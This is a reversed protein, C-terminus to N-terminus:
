EVAADSVVVKGGMILRDDDDADRLAWKHTVAETTVAAPYKFTLNNRDDGSVSLEEDELTLVSIKTKAKDNTEFVLVLNKDDLDVPTTKDPLTVVITESITEGVYVNLVSSNVAQRQGVGIALAVKGAITGTIGNVTTDSLEIEPPTANMAAILTDAITQATVGDVVDGDSALGFLSNCLTEARARQAMPTPHIGDDSWTTDDPDYGIDEMMRRSNVAIIKTGAEAIETIADAYLQDETEQGASLDNRETDSMLIIPVTTNAWTSGRLLAILALLKTKFEAATDGLVDSNNTGLGILIADWDGMTRFMAGANAHNAAISETTYGTFAFGEWIIGGTSALSVLRAGALNAGAVVGGSANAGRYILNTQPKTPDYPITGTRFKVPQNDTQDLELGSSFGTANNAGFYGSSAIDIYPSSRWYLEPPGATSTYAFLDAVFGDTPDLIDYVGARNYYSYDAKTVPLVRSCGQSTSNNTVVAKSPLIYSDPTTKAANYALRSHAVWQGQNTSDNAPFIIPTESCVGFQRFSLANLQAIFHKGQGKDYEQSDGFVAIRTNVSGARRFIQAFTDRDGAVYATTLYTM